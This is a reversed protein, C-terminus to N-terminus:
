LYMCECVLNILTYPRSPSPCCSNSGAPLINQCNVVFEYILMYKLIYLSIKKKGWTNLLVLCFCFGQSGKLTWRKGYKLDRCWALLVADEEFFNLTLCFFVFGFGCGVVFCCFGLVCWFVDGFGGVCVLFVGWWVFLFGVGRMKGGLKTKLNCPEAM